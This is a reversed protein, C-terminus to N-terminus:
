RILTVSGSRIYPVVTNCSKVKCHIMYFYTDVAINASPSWKMNYDDTSFVRQGWRNYMEFSYDSILTKLSQAFVPAFDKNDQAEPTFVNPFRMLSDLNIDEDIFISDKSFSCNRYGTVYYIGRKSITISKSSENTSWVYRDYKDNDIKLIFDSPICTRSLDMLSLQDDKKPTVVIVMTDNLVCGNDLTVQISYQGVKGKILISDTTEGNSWSVSKFGPQIGVNLIEDECIEIMSELLNPADKVKVLEVEDVFTYPYVLSPPKGSGVFMTDNIGLGKFRGIIILDEGGCATYEFSYKQYKKVPLFEGDPTTWFPTFIKELSLDNYFPVGEDFVVGIEDLSYGSNIDISLNFSFRYVAGAELKTTLVNGLYEYKGFSFFGGHRKGALPFSERIDSSGPNPAFWDVPKNSNNTGFFEVGKNGFQGCKDCKEFGPNSVLNQSQLKIVLILTFILTHKKM